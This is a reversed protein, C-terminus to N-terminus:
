PKKAEIYISESEKERLNLDGPSVITTEGPPLIIPMKFGSNFLLETLSKGDYMWQHNRDGVILYRLKNILTNPRERTLLLKNLFANADEDSNYKDILKKLDPVVIRIIGDAQLVRLAERLYKKVTEQDLHELMHSSYIVEVSNDALPLRKTADAKQINEKKAFAIFQKQAQNLLGMANFLYFLIPKKALIISPSNDFNIWGSTPTQGCGINVKTM